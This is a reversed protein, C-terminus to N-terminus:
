YALRGKLQMIDTLRHFFKGTHLLVNLVLISTLNLVNHLLTEEKEELKWGM